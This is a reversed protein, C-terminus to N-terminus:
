GFTLWMIVRVSEMSCVFALKLSAESLYLLLVDM